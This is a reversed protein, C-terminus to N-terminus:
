PRDTSLPAAIGSSRKSAAGRASRVISSSRRKSASAPLPETRAFYGRTHALMGRRDADPSHIELCSASRRSCRRTPASSLVIVRERRYLHPPAVFDVTVAGTATRASGGDPSVRAADDQAVQRGDRGLDTDDYNFSSLEAAAALTGGAVSLRTGPVSLLPLTTSDVPEVHFGRARLSDVFSVHDRVPGGHSLVPACAALLVGLVVLSLSRAQVM